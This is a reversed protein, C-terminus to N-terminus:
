SHVSGLCLSAFHRLWLPCSQCLLKEMHSLIAPAPINARQKSSLSKLCQVVSNRLRSLRSQCEVKRTDLETVLVQRLKVKQFLSKISLQHRKELLTLWMQSGTEVTTRSVHDWHNLQHVLIHQSTGKVEAIEFRIKLSCRNSQLWGKCMCWDVAHLFSVVSSRNWQQEPTFYTKFSSKQPCFLRFVIYENFILIEIYDFNDKWLTAM